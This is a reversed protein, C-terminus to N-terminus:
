IQGSQLKRQVALREFDRYFRYVMIHPRHLSRFNVLNPNGSIRNFIRTIHHRPQSVSHVRDVGHKLCIEKRGWYWLKKLFQNSQDKLDYYIDALEWFYFVFVFVFCFLIGHLFM